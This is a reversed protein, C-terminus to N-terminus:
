LSGKRGDRCMKLYMGVVQVDMVIMDCILNFLSQHNLQRKQPPPFRHVQVSDLDLLNKSIKTKM